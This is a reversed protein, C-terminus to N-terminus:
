KSVACEKGGKGSTMYIYLATLYSLCLIMAIAYVIYISLNMVIQEIQENWFIFLFSNIMIWLAPPLFFARQKQGNLQFLLILIGYLFIASFSIGLLRWFLIESAFFYRVFLLMFFNLVLNLSSFYLMRIATVQYLNFFCVMKIEYMQQHYEKWATLIYTTMYAFPSALLLTCCLFDQNARWLIIWGIFAALLGLFICDGMDFFIYKPVCFRFVSLLKKVKDHPSIVGKEIIEKIALEKEAESLKETLM